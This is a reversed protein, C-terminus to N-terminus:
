CGGSGRQRINRLKMFTGLVDIQGVENRVARVMSTGDKRCLEEYHFPGRKQAIGLELRQEFHDFDNVGAKNQSGSPMVAYKEGVM